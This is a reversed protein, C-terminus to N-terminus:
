FPPQEKKGHESYVWRIDAVILIAVAGGRENYPCFLDYGRESHCHAEDDRFEKKGEDYAYM